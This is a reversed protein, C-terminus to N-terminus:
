GDGIDFRNKMPSTASQPSNATTPRPIQEEGTTSKATEIWEESLVIWQYQM